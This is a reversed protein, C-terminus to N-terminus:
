GPQGSGKTMDPSHRWSQNVLINHQLKVGTHTERLQAEGHEHVDSAGEKGDRGNHQVNDVQFIDRVHPHTVAAPVTYKECAVTTPEHRQPDLYFCCLELSSPLPLFLRLCCSENTRRSDLSAIRKQQRITFQYMFIKKGWTMTETFLKTKLFTNIRDQRLM